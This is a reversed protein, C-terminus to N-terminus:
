VSLIHPSCKRGYRKKKKGEYTVMMGTTFKNQQANNDKKYKDIVEQKWIEKQAETAKTLWDKAKPKGISTTMPKLTVPNGSHRERSDQLNKAKVNTPIVKGLDHTVTDDKGREPTAATLDSSDSIVSNSNTIRHTAEVCPFSMPTIMKRPSTRRILQPPSRLSLHEVDSSNTCVAEMRRRKKVLDEIRQRKKAQRRKVHQSFAM